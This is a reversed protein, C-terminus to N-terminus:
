HKIVGVNYVQRSNDSKCGNTGLIHRDFTTWVTMPNVSTNYKPFKLCIQWDKLILKSYIHVYSIVNALSGLRHFYVGPVWTHKGEGKYANIEKKGKEKQKQKNMNKKILIFFAEPLSTSIVYSEQLYKMECKLLNRQCM